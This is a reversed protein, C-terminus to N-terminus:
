NGRLLAVAEAVGAQAAKELLLNARALDQAVGVGNRYNMGLEYWVQPLKRQAEHLDQEAAITFWHMAM